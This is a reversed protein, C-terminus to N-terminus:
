MHGLVPDPKCADSNTGPGEEPSSDTSDYRMHQGLVLLPQGVKPGIRTDFFGSLYSRM